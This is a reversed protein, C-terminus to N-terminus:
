WTLSLIRSLSFEAESPQFWLFSGWPVMAKVWADSPINLADDGDGQGTYPCARLLQLSKSIKGFVPKQVPSIDVQNPCFIDLDKEFWIKKFDM